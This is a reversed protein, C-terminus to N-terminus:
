DFLHIPNKLMPMWYKVNLEGTTYESDGDSWINERVYIMFALDTVEPNSFAVFCQQDENPKHKDIDFWEVELKMKTM